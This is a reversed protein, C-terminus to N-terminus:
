SQQPANASFRKGGTEMMRKAEELSKATHAVYLTLENWLIWQDHGVNTVLWNGEATEGISKSAEFMDLYSAFGWQDAFADNQRSPQAPHGTTAAVAQKALAHGGAATLLDKAEQRAQQPAHDVQSATPKSAAGSM